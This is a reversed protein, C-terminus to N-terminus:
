GQAPKVIENLRDRLADMGGPVRKFGAHDKLHGDQSHSMFGVMGFVYDCTDAKGKVAGASQGSDVFRLDFDNRYENFILQSQSPKLGVVLVRPLRVREAPAVTPIVPLMEQIAEPNMAESLAERVHTMFQAVMTRALSKLLADVSAVPEPAPQPTPLPVESDLQAQMMNATRMEEDAIRAAEAEAAEEAADRERVIEPMLKLVGEINGKFVLVKQREPPLLSQQLARSVNLIDRSNSSADYGRQVLAVAMLRTEEANWRVPTKHPTGEPKAKTM